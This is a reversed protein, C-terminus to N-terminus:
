LHAEYLFDGIRAYTDGSGAACCPGILIEVLTEALEARDLVLVIQRADHLKRFEAAQAPRVKKGPAKTEIFFVHGNFAVLYDPAGVRNEWKLKRIFGGRAEVAKILAAAVQGEPTSRQTASM